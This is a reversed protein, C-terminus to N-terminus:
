LVVGQKILEGRIDPPTWGEPKRLKGDIVKGGAKALNSRQVEAFLPRVDIGTASCLHGIHIMLVDLLGWQTFPQDDTFDDVMQALAVEGVTHLTKHERRFVQSFDCWGRIVTTNILLEFRPRCVRGICDFTGLVVYALDCIADCTEVPDCEEVAEELEELEEEILRVRSALLEGHLSAPQDYPRRPLDCAHHFERVNQQWLSLAFPEM